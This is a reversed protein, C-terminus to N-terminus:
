FRRRYPLFHRDRRESGGDPEQGERWVVGQTLLVITEVGQAAGTAASIWKRQIVHGDTIRELLLVLQDLSALTRDDYTEGAISIDFLGSQKLAIAVPCAAALHPEISLFWSPGDRAELTRAVDSITPVWYRLQEITAEVSPARSGESPKNM